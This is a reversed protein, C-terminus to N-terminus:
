LPASGTARPALQRVLELLEGPLFPKPLVGCNQFRAALEADPFAAMYLLAIEQSFPLFPEPKNTILLSVDLEHTHLIRLAENLDTSHFRWGQPALVHRVFGCVFPDEVMLVVGPQLKPSM